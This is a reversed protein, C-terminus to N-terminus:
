GWGRTARPTAAKPTRPVQERKRARSVSRNRAACFRRGACRKAPEGLRFRPRDCFPWPDNRWESASRARLSRRCLCSACALPENARSRSRCDGFVRAVEGVELSRGIAPRTATANRSSDGPGHLPQRTEDMRDRARRCQSDVRRARGPSIFLRDQRGFHQRPPRDNRKRGLARTERPPRPQPTSFNPEAASGAGAPLTARSFREGQSLDDACRVPSPAGQWHRV